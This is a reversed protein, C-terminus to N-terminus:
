TQERIKKAIFAGQWEADPEDEFLWALREGTEREVERLTKEVEIVREEWSDSPAHQDDVIREARARYKSM